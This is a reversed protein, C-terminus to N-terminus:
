DRDLKEGAVEAKGLREPQRKCATRLNKRNGETGARVRLRFFHPVM